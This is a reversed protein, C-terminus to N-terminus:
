LVSMMEKIKVYDTTYNVGMNLEDKMAVVKRATFHLADVGSNALKVANGPGVGSGAMIEIRGAAQKTIKELLDVGEIAKPQQGSTLLRDFGLDILMELAKEYDRTFDFARHFTVGLGLEKAKQLLLKNAPIDITFDETLCGFVVGHAGADACAEIDKLMISLTEENCIFNGGYARVMAFVQLDTNEVCMRIMGPSPTLGGLDLASCLEVRDAGAKDAAIATEPKEICVEFEM